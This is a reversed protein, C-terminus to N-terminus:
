SQANAKFFTYCFVGERRSSKKLERIGEDWDSPSVLGNKVAREGGGEVMAIFTKLTFGEVMEPRSADAYVMRPSVRINRFGNRELLPYLYRGILSDGGDLEQLKILCEITKQAKDNKPHYYASGHDGEIVTLQGDPKLIHRIKQLAGDTDALHELVFCIFAYDFSGKGFPLAYIDAQQFRVNSYGLSKCRKEAKELSNASIDVSNFNVLRNQSRVIVTQAGVGCGIELVSAGEPFYTDHHLLSDLTQAQDNLRTNETEGYGHVYKHDM